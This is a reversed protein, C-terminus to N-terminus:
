GLLSRELIEETVRGDLSAFPDDLLYAAPRYAYFARALGLRARQGGSLTTGKEGLLTKEARPMQHFVEEHMCALRLAWELREPDEMQGLYINNAVTDNVIFPETSCYALHEPRLATGNVLFTEGLLAKLVTSKGSGIRGTLVVLEGNQIKFNIDQLADEYGM